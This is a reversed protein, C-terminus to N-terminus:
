THPHRLRKDRRSGAARRAKLVAPGGSVPGLRGNQSKSGKSRPVIVLGGVPTIYGGANLVSSHGRFPSLGGSRHTATSRWRVKKRNAVRVGLWAAVRRPFSSPM